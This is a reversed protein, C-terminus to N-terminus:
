TCVADRRIGYLRLREYFIRKAEGYLWLDNRNLWRV